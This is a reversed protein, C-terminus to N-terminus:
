ESNVRSKIVEGHCCKLAGQKWTAFNQSGWVEVHCNKAPSQNVYLCCGIWVRDAARGCMRGGRSVPNWHSPQRIPFTLSSKEVQGDDSRTCAGTVAM